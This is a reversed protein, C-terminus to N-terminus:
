RCLAVYEYICFFMSLCGHRTTQTPSYKQAKPRAAVIISLLINNPPDFWLVRFMSVIDSLDARATPQRFPPLVLDVDHSAPVVIKRVGITNLFYNWPGPENKLLKCTDGQDPFEGGRTSGSTRNGKNVTSNLGCGRL